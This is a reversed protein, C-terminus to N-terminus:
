LVQGTNLPFYANDAQEPSSKAAGNTLTASM